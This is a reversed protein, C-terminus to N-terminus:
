VLIFFRFHGEFEASRRTPVEAPSRNTKRRVKRRLTRELLVPQFYFHANRGEVRLSNLFPIGVQQELLWPDDRSLCFKHKANARLPNVEFLIPCPAVRYSSFYSAIEHEPWGTFMM